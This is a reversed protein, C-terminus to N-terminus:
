RSTTVIEDHLEEVGVNRCRRRRELRWNAAFLRACCRCAALKAILEGREDVLELTGSRM